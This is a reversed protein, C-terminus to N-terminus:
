GPVARGVATHGRQPHALGARLGGRAKQGPGVQLPRLHLRGRGRAGGRGRVRGRGRDRSRGRVRVRVRVRVLHM